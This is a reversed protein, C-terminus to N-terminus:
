FYNCILRLSSKDEKILVVFEEDLDIEELCRFKGRNEMLWRYDVWMFVNEFNVLSMGGILWM